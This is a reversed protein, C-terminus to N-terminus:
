KSCDATADFYHAGKRKENIKKLQEETIIVGFGMERSQFASVMVGLGDSKPLISREGSPGTWQKGNFSFQNFVSEDQGFVIIPNSGEPRCVSVNGGFRGYKEVGFDQLCDHDDLHFELMDIGTIPDQYPHGPALIKKGDPLSSKILEFADATM